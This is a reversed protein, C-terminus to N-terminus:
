LGSGAFTVDDESRGAAQHSDSGSVLRRSSTPSKCAFSQSTDLPAALRATRLFEELASVLRTERKDVLDTIRSEFCSSHLCWLWECSERQSVTM